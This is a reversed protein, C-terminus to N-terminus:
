DRADHIQDSNGTCLFLVNYTATPATMMGDGKSPRLMGACLM